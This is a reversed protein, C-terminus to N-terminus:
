VGVYGHQSSTLIRNKNEIAATILEGHGTMVAATFLWIGAPFLSWCIIQFIMSLPLYGAIPFLLLFISLLVWHAIGRFVFASFRLVNQFEWKVGIMGLIGFGYTIGALTYIPSFVITKYQTYAAANYSSFANLFSALSIEAYILFSSIALMPLSIIFVTAIRSSAITKILSNCMSRCGKCLDLSSRVALGVQEPMYEKPQGTSMEDDNFFCCCTTFM